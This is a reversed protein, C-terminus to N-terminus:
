EQQFEAFVLLKVLEKGERFNGMYGMYYIAFDLATRGRDDKLSADVGNKLLLNLIELYDEVSYGSYKHFYTDLHLPRKGDWYQIDVDAGVNILVKATNLDGTELAKHLPFISDM